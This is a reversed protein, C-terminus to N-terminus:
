ETLAAQYLHMKIIKLTANIDVGRGSKSKNEVYSLYAVYKCIQTIKKM